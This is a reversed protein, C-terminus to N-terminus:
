SLTCVIVSQNLSRIWRPYKRWYVNHGKKVSGGKGEKQNENRNGRTEAGTVKSKLKKSLYSGLHGFNFKSCGEMKQRFAPRNVTGFSDQVFRVRAECSHMCFYFNYYGAGCCVYKKVNSLAYCCSRVIKKVV